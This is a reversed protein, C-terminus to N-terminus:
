FNFWQCNKYKEPIDKDTGIYDLTEIWVSQENPFIWENLYKIFDEETYCVVGGVCYRKAHPSKHLWEDCFDICYKRLNNAVDDPVLYVSLNSDSSLLVHKIIKM